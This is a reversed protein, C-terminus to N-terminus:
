PRKIWKGTQSAYGVCEMGRIGLRKALEIVDEAFVQVLNASVRLMGESMLACVMLRQWLYLIRFVKDSQFSPYWLTKEKGIAVPWERAFLIQRASENPLEDDSM